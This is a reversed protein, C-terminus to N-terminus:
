KITKGGLDPMILEKKAKSEKERQQIEGYLHPPCVHVIHTKGTPDEPDPVSDETAYGFIQPSEPASGEYYHRCDWTSLLEGNPPPRYKNKLNDIAWQFSLHIGALSILIIFMVIETLSENFYTADVLIPGDKHHSMSVMYLLIVSFGIFLITVVIDIKPDRKMYKRVIKEPLLTGLLIFFIPILIAFLAMFLIQFVWAPIMM